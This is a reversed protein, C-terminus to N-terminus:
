GLCRQGVWGGGCWLECGTACTRLQDDSIEDASNIPSSIPTDKRPVSHEDMNTAKLRGESMWFGRDGGGSM